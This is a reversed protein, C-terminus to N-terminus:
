PTKHIFAECMILFVLEMNNESSKSQIDSFFFCALTYSWEKLMIFALAVKAEMRLVVCFLLFFSSSM